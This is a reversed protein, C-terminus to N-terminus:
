MMPRREACLFMPLFYLKPTEKTEDASSKITLQHSILLESAELFKWKGKKESYFTFM